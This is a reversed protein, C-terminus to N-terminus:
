QITDMSATFKHPKNAETQQMAHRYIPMDSKQLARYASPNIDTAGQVHSLSEQLEWEMHDLGEVPQGERAEM